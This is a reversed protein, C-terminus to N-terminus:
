TEFGDVRQKLGMVTGMGDWLGLRLLVVGVRRVSCARSFM